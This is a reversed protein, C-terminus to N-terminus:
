KVTTKTKGNYVVGLNSDMTIFCGSKIITMAEQANYIVPIKKASCELLVSSSM